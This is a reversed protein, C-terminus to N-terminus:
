RPCRTIYTKSLQHAGIDGSTGVVGNSFHSSKAAQGEIASGLARQNGTGSSTCLRWPTFRRPITSRSPKPDAEFLQGVRADASAEEPQLPPWGPHHGHLRDSPDAPRVKNFALANSADRPPQAHRPLHHPPRYSGLRDLEAVLAANLRQRLEPAM